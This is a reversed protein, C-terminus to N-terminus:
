PSWDDIRNLMDENLPILLRNLFSDLQQREEKTLVLLVKHMEKSHEAIKLLELSKETLKLTLLKSKPSAKIKEIIGDKEMM